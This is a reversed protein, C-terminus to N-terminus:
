PKRPFHRSPSLAIKCLMDAVFNLRNIVYLRIVPQLKFRKPSRRRGSRSGTPSICPYFFPRPKTSQANRRPYPLTRTVPHCGSCPPAPNLGSPHKDNGPPESLCEKKQPPTKPRFPLCYPFPTFIKSGASLPLGRETAAGAPLQLPMLPLSTKGSLSNETVM